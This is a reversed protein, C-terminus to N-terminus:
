EVVRVLIASANDRGAAELALRILNRTKEEVDSPSNLERELVEPALMGSVGDSCLLYLDGVEVASQGLSPEVEPTTGLAQVLQNTHPLDLPVSTGGRYPAGPLTDDATLLEVQGNRARYLRSDGVHAWSATRTAQSLRLAM